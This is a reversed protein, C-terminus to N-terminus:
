RDQGTWGYAQALLEIPHNGRAPKPKDDGAVIEMVQMLHDAALPCESAVFSTDNKIAAQAAPKGVKVATAADVAGGSSLKQEELVAAIRDREVVRIGPNAALASTVLDALGKSLPALEANSAGIASNTFPLVAITPKSQAAATGAVLALGVFATFVPKTRM